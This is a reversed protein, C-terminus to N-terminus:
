LISDPYMICSALYMIFLDKISWEAHVRCRSDDMM